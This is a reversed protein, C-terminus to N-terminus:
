LISKVYDLSRAGVLVCDLGDNLYYDVLLRATTGDKGLTEGVEKRVATLRSRINYLTCQRSAMFFSNVIEEKNPDNNGIAQIFPTLHKQFVQEQHPLTNFKNWSENLYKLIAFDSFKETHGNKVLTYEVWEKFANFDSDPNERLRLQQEFKDVDM